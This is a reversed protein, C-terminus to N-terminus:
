GNTPRADAGLLENLRDAVRRTKPPPAVWPSLVAVVRGDPLCAVVHHAWPGLLEMSEFREVAVFGQMATLDRSGWRARQGQLAVEVWAIPKWHMAARALCGLYIALGIAGLAWPAAPIFELQRAEMEEALRFVLYSPVLGVIGWIAAMGRRSVSVVYGTGTERWHIM